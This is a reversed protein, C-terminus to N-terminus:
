PRMKFEFDADTGSVPRMSEGLPGQEGCIGYVLERSVTEEARQRSFFTLIYKPRACLQYVSCLSRLCANIMNMALPIDCLSEQNTPDFAPNTSSERAVTKDLCILACSPAEQATCVGTLTAVFALLNLAIRM